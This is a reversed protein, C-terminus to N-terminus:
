YYHRGLNIFTKKLRSKVNTLNCDLKGGFISLELSIVKGKFLKILLLHGFEHLSISFFIYFIYHAQGCFVFILFIIITFYSIKIKILNKWPM